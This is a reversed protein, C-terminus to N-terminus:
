PHDIGVKPDLNIKDVINNLIAATQNITLPKKEKISKEISKRMKKNM